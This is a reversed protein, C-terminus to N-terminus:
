PPMEAIVLPDQETLRLRELTALSEETGIQVLAWVAHSRVLASENGLTKELLLIDSPDGINGLAVCVNRQMGVYKARMIPTGRFKADFDSQSMRLIDRMDFENMSERISFDDFAVDGALQNVPCIEQCLDCGFIWTGIPKRLEVPIPGRNEITLYSICLDNEVEYDSTIAGTPCVDVCRRCSGCTKLVPKDPTLELTTIIEALFVWSGNGPVLLNTNKGIWGLGSERAFARELLPSDDVFVRYPPNQGIEQAVDNMYQVLRRKLVRHYDRGLAYRAIYGKQHERNLEGTADFYNIAFTLVSRAEPLLKEPDSAIQMRQQTLWPLGSFKGEAIRDSAITADSDVRNARAIALSSFGHALALKKLLGTTAAIADNDLM